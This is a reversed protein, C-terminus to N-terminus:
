CSAILDELRKKYRDFSFNDLTKNRIATREANDARHNKKLHKIIAYKIEDASDPNVLTGSEGNLLADVSGDANGAIVPVGCVLAEIFVIGFGEKKSPMIYVDAMQYHAVLEKEDLFGTLIVHGNLGHEDILANIRQQEQLDYKGAIVYKVHPYDPVISGLAAIVKDYGKYLETNALRTLTYVVFDDPSINYRARLTDVRETSEPMPFYPDITNPFVTIKAGDVGHMEEIKSKTFNSVSLIRDAVRLISKKAGSLVGWVDIGHTVLLVSKSPYLKKIAIGVIALNIHGLIIVDFKRASFISQLIFAAKNKRFGKYRTATYYLESVANDYLSFSHSDTIHERDLDSLAKLFCKNFREIGGTQSFATLNLFLVRKM